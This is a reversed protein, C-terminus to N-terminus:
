YYKDQYMTWEFQKVIYEYLKKKSLPRKGLIPAEGRFGRSERYERIIKNLKHVTLTNFHDREWENIHNDIYEERDKKDTPSSKNKIYNVLNKKLLSLSTKTMKV